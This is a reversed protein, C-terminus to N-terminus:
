FKMKRGKVWNDKLYDELLEKKIKKNETGNNIWCTNFSGNKNGQKSNSMKIKSLESHTKGTWNYNWGTIKRNGSSYSKQFAISCKKSFDEKFVPDNSIRHKFANTGATSCKIQHDKNIFGGSGGPKLNMCLDDLLLQNTILASERQVLSERDSLFEMIECKFNEIGYKRISRRLCTGSGIYGDKLNSTSHMGYYYKNNLLNTTIYIFHFTKHKIINSM